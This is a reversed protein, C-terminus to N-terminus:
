ISSMIFSMPVLFSCLFICSIPGKFELLSVPSHKTIKTDIRVDLASSLDFELPARLACALWIVVVHVCSVFLISYSLVFLFVLCACSGCACCSLFVPCSLVFVFVCVCVGCFSRCALTLCVAAPPFQSVANLQKTWWFRKYVFRCTRENLELQRSKCHLQTFKCSCTCTLPDQVFLRKRRESCPECRSCSFCLSLSLSLSMSLSVYLSLWLSVSLSTDLSYTESFRQLCCSLSLSMGWCLYVCVYM